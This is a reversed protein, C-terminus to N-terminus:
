ATLIFDREKKATDRDAGQRRLNNYVIKKAQSWVVEGGVVFGLAFICFSLFFHVLISEM